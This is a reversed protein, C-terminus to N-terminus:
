GAATSKEIAPAQKNGTCLLFVIWLCFIASFHSTVFMDFFSQFMVLTMFLLVLKKRKRVVLFYPALYIVLLILLGPVGFEMWAQLYQNHSDLLKSEKWQNKYDETQYLERAADFKLQASSIGHGTLPREKVVSWGAEWLFLRPEAKILEFSLRQNSSILTSAFWPILLVFLIALLKKLKWLEIFVLVITLILGFVFGTRGESIFLIYLFLILSTMLGFKVFVNLKKWYSSLLYWVGIIASNLYFNVVMHTNIFETRALNFLNKDAIFPQIGVKFFVIYLVALLASVMVSVIFYRLKYLHNVGFFGVVSFGLLPYRKEILTKFYISSQDFPYYAFALLFFLLLVLFFLKTKDFKFNKWKKDTFFEVIYSIFFIFYGIEQLEYNRILLIFVLFTCSLLNFLNVFLKLRSTITPMM